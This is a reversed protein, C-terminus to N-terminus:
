LGFSQRIQRLMALAGDTYYGYNWYQDAAFAAAWVGIAIWVLRDMVAYSIPNPGDLRLLGAGNGAGFQNFIRCQYRRAGSGAQRVPGYFDDTRPIRRRHGASPVIQERM